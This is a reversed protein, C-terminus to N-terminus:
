LTSRKACKIRSKEKKIAEIYEEPTSQRVKIYSFSLRELHSIFRDPIMEQDYGNM